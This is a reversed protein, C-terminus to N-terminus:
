RKRENGIEEIKQELKESFKMLMSQFEVRMKELKSFIKDVEEKTAYKEAVKERHKYHEKSLNDVKSNLTKAIILLVGVQGLTMGIQLWQWESM